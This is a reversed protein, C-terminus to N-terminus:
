ILNEKKHLLYYRRNYARMEEAHERHYERSRRRNEEIHRNKCEKQCTKCQRKGEPTIYTNEQNFPHGHICYIRSANPDNGNRVRDNMNDSHTGWRLNSLRNDSPDDNWHCSEMGEPCPGIFAELVLRHVFRQRHKGDGNLEVFYRGNSNEQQKLIRERVLQGDRRVRQLSKIRGLNSVKYFGEWGPIDIWMEQPQM